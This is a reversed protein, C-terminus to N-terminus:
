ILETNLQKLKIFTLNGNATKGLFGIRRLQKTAQITWMQFSKFHINRIAIM